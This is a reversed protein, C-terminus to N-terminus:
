WRGFAVFLALVLLILNMPIAKSEKRKAHFGAALIMILGLGLAAIPTLIPAIGLVYPLILGLGGLLEAVGIFTVLGKSSDQVWAMSAKAKEYSFAKTSGAMLFMLGLLIQAIWLAINM